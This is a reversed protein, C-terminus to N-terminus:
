CLISLTHSVCSMINSSKPVVYFFFILTPTSVCIPLTSPTFYPLYPLLGNFSMAWRYGLSPHHADYLSLACLLHDLTYPCSLPFPPYPVLLSLPLDPSLSTSLYFTFAMHRGLILYRVSALSCLLHLIPGCPRYSFYTM